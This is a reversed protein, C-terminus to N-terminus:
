ALNYRKGLGLEHHRSHSSQETQLKAPVMLKSDAPAKTYCFSLLGAVVKTNAADLAVSTGDAASGSRGTM